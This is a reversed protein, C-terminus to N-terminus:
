WYLAAITFFTHLALFYLYGFILIRFWKRHSKKTLDIAKSKKIIIMGILFFLGGVGYLYILPLWVHTFPLM